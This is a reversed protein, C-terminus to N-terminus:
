SEDIRKLFDVFYPCLSGKWYLNGNCEKQLVSREVRCEFNKEVDFFICADGELKPDGFIQQRVSQMSIGTEDTWANLSKLVSKIKNISENSPSDGMIWTAVIKSTVSNFSSLPHKFDFSDSDLKQYWEIASKYDEKLMHADGVLFPIIRVITSMGSCAAVDAAENYYKIAKDLQGRRLAVDGLNIFAIATSKMDESEQSIELARLNYTEMQDFQGLRRDIEGVNILAKALGVQDNLQQQVVLLEEFQDRAEQFHGQASLIVGKLNRGESIGKPYGM